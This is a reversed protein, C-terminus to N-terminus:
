LAHDAVQAAPAKVIPVGLEMVDPIGEVQRLLHEPVFIRRVVAAWAEQPFILCQCLNIRPYRGDVWEITRTFFEPNSEAIESSEVSTLFRSNRGGDGVLDSIIRWERQRYYDLRPALTFENDTKYFLSALGKLMAGLSHFDADRKLNMILDHLQTSMIEVPPSDSFRQIKWRGERPERVAEELEGLFVLMSQIEALKEVFSYGLGDFFRTRGYGVPQPVYIVPMAGLRRGADINIEFAFPGFTTSHHPLESEHLETLCLRTQAAALGRAEDLVLVEPTLLFGYRAILSLAKLGLTEGDMGKRPRPFSHYFFREYPNEVM